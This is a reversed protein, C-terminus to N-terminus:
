RANVFLQKMEGPDYIDFQVISLVDMHAQSGPNICWTDGIQTKYSGLVVAEHCHGSLVLYPQTREIFRAVESSGVHDPLRLLEYRGQPPMRDLPTGYPPAHFIHITQEPVYTLNGDDTERRLFAAYDELDDAITTM